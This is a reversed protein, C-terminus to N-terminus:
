LSDRANITLPLGCRLAVIHQYASLAANINFLQFHLTQAHAFVM